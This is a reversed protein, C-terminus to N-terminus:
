SIGNLANIVKVTSRVMEAFFEATNKVKSELRKFIGLGLPGNGNNQAFIQQNQQDPPM